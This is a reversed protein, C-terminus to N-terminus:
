NCFTKMLELDFEINMLGDLRMVGEGSCGAVLVRFDTEISKGIMYKIYIFNHM